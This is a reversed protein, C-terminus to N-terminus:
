NFSSSVVGPKGSEVTLRIEWLSKKMLIFDQDIKRHHHIDKIRLANIGSRAL